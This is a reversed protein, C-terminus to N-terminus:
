FSFRPKAFARMMKRPLARWHKRKSRAGNYIQRLRVTSIWRLTDLTSLSSTKQAAFISDVQGLVRYGNLSLIEEDVLQRVGEFSYTDHLAVIGGEKVYRSWGYFDQCVADYSHDGDIWLFGIPENWDELAQMSPMVLPVVKASLGARAINDRFNMETGGHHPDIAYLAHGGVAQCAKGLWLASRGKYSGIEVVAGLRAGIRALAHLYPGERKGLFGEVTAEIMRIENISSSSM